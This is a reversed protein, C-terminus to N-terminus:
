LPAVQQWPALMARASEPLAATVFTVREGALSKSRHGIRDRERYRLAVLENV